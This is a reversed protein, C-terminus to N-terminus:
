GPRCLEWKRRLKFSNVALKDSEGSLLGASHPPHSSHDSVIFLGRQRRSIPFNQLSKSPKPTGIKTPLARTGRSTKPTEGFVDHLGYKMLGVSCPERFKSQPSMDGSESQCVRRGTGFGPRTQVSLILACGEKM